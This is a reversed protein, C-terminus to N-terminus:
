TLKTDTKDTKKCSKQFNKLGKLGLRNLNETNFLVNVASLNIKKKRDKKCTRGPSTQSLFRLFIVKKNNESLATSLYYHSVTEQMAFMSLGDM